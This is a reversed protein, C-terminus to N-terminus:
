RSRFVRSMPMVFTEEPNDPQITDGLGLLVASECKKHNSGTSSSSPFLQPFRFMKLPWDLREVHQSDLRNQDLLAQM